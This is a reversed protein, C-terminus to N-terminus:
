LLTEWDYDELDNDDAMRAAATVPVSYNSMIPVPLLVSSTVM